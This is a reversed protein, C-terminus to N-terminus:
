ISVRFIQIGLCCTLSQQLCCSSQRLEMKKAELTSWPHNSPSKSSYLLSVLFPAINEIPPVISRSPTSCPELAGITSHTFMMLWSLSGWSGDWLAMSWKVVLLLPWPGCYRSQLLTGYLIMAREPLQVGLRCFTSWQLYSCDSLKPDLEGAKPVAQIHNSPSTSSLVAVGM